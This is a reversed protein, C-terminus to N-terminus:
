RNNIQMIHYILHKIKEFQIDRIVWLGSAIVLMNGEVPRNKLM